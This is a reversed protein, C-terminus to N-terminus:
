VEKLNITVGSWLGDSALLERTRSISDILVTYQDYNTEPAATTGGEDSTHYIQLSLESDLNYLSLYTALDNGGILDYQLKINKKTTIIDRVLRGSYTRGERSIQEDEISLKRAYPSMLSESGSTGLYIDGKNAM